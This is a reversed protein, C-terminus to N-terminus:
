RNFSKVETTLHSIEELCKRAEAYEAGLGLTCLGKIAVASSKIDRFTGAIAIHDDEFSQKLILYSSEIETTREKVKLDLLRNASKRQRHSRYLIYFLAILLLTIVGILINLANQRRIVLDKFELLQQQETIRAKNGRELYESEIKMLNNIQWQGYISDMLQIYKEQYLTRKKNNGTKKYFFSFKPYLLFLEYRFPAQQMILEAESLCKMGSSIKNTKFCIDVLDNTLILQERKHGTKKALSYAKLFYVEASDLNEKHYHFYGYARLGEIMFTGRCEPQCADLGKKLFENAKLFDKHESYCLSINLFTTTGPYTDWRPMVDLARHYYQLAKENDELKFYIVGINSLAHRMELSDRDQATVKLLEFNYHLALDYHAKYIYAAAIGRLLQKLQKGYNNRLAIPLVELSLVLSSDMEDLRRFAFAVIRGAKVMRLSDGIKKALHFSKEGYQVGLTDIYDVYEYALEYFIDAREEDTKGPLLSRLSDIKRQPQAAVTGSVGQLILLILIKLVLWRLSDTM